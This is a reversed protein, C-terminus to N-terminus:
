GHPQTGIRLGMVELTDTVAVFANPDMGRIMRKLRAVERVAIVTHLIQEPQNSYAGRGQIITAGRGIDKLIGRHIKEWQTSIILVAKRQSWGTVMPNVVYPVVYM